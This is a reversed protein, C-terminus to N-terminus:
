ATLKEFQGKYIFFVRGTTENYVEYGIVEHSTGHVDNHIVLTDGKTVDWDVGTFINKTVDSNATYKKM